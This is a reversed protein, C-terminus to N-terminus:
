SPFYRLFVEGTSSQHFGSENRFIRTNIPLWVARKCIRRNTFPSYKLSNATRFRLVAKKADVDMFYDYTHISALIGATICAAGFLVGLLWPVLYKLKM